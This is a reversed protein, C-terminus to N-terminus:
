NPQINLRDIITTWRPIEKNMQNTLDQPTGGVLEGGGANVKQILEPNKIAENLAQNLKNIIEPSTGKPALLAMWSGMDLGSYGLEGLTPVDPLVNLRKSSTIALARLQGSKVFPAASPVLELAVDTRGGVMDILAPSSGKYPVHVWKIGMREQFYEGMLHLVSGTGASAMNLEKTKSLKVLEAINNVPLDKRIVVIGPNNVFWIVPELSQRPDFNAKKFISPSVTLPGASGVALTYGDPAARAVEEMASMGGVGPRNEIIFTQNFAKQLIQAMMRGAGDVAGGAPFGVIMKVPRNPYDSQAYLNKSGFLLLAIPVLFFIQKINKNMM